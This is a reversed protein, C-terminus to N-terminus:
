NRFSAVGIVVGVVILLVELAMVVLSEGVSSLHEKWVVAGFMRAVGLGVMAWAVMTILVTWDRKWVNHQRVLVWGGIFLLLGSTYIQPATMHDYLHPQILPFESLVMLTLIPSLYQGIIKSHQAQEQTSQQEQTSISQHM